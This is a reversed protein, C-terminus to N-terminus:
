CYKWKRNITKACPIPTTEYKQVHKQIITIKIVTIIMIIIKQATQVRSLHPDRRQKNGELMSHHLTERPAGARNCAQIEGELVVQM